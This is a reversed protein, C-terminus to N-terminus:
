SSTLEKNRIEEVVPKLSSNRDVVEIRSFGLKNEISKDLLIALTIRGQSNKYYELETNKFIKMERLIPFNKNDVKFRDMMKETECTFYIAQDSKGALQFRIPIYSETKLTILCKATMRAVETSSQEFRNPEYASYNDFLEEVKQYTIKGKPTLRYMNTEEFDNQVVGQERLYDLYKELTDISTETKKDLYQLHKATYNSNGLKEVLEAIRLFRNKPSENLSSGRLIEYWNPFNEKGRESKELMRTELNMNDNYVPLM